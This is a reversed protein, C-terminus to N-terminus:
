FDFLNLQENKVKSGYHKRLREKEDYNEFILSGPIVYGECFDDDFTYMGSSSFACSSTRYIEKGDKYIVLDGMCACPYTGTYEVKYNGNM